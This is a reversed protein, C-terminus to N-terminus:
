KTRNFRMVTGSDPDGITDILGYPAKNATLGLTWLEIGTSDLYVGWHTKLNGSGDDVSGVSDLRWRGSRTEQRDLVYVAPSTDRWFPFNTATFTGDSRLEVSCPRSDVVSLGDATVTQEALAYVGAVDAEKPKETTFLHAYPNYQCGTSLVAGLIALVLAKMRVLRSFDGFEFYAFDNRM